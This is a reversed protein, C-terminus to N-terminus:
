QRQESSGCNLAEGVIRVADDIGACAESNLVEFWGPACALPLEILAEAPEVAAAPRRCGIAAPGSPAAAAVQLPCRFLEVDTRMPTFVRDDFAVLMAILANDRDPYFAFGSDPRDIEPNVACRAVDVSLFAPLRLEVQLGLAPQPSKGQWSVVLEADGGAPASAHAVTITQAELHAALLLMTTIALMTKM